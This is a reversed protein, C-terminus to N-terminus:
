SARMKAPNWRFVLASGARRFRRVCELGVIATDSSKQNVITYVHVLAKGCVCRPPDDHLIEPDSYDYGGLWAWDSLEGLNHILIAEINRAM